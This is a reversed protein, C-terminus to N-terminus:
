NNNIRDDSVAVDVMADDKKYGLICDKLKLLFDPVLRKGKVMSITSTEPKTSSSFNEGTLAKAKLTGAGKEAYSVGDKIIKNNTGVGRAGELTVAVREAGTGKGTGELGKSIDDETGWMNPVVFEFTISRLVDGHIKSFNWFHTSDWIPEVEIQFPKDHRKNIAAVLSKLLAPPSGVLDNEVAVRQGKDHSRPDLLLYAGQWEDTETESGGGDPPLHHRHPRTKQLVGVICDEKAELAVWHVVKGARHEFEFNAQLAAKLWEARTLDPTEFDIQSVPILSLHFLTFKRM